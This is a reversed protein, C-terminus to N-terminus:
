DESTSLSKNISYKRSTASKGCALCLRFSEPTRYIDCTWIAIKYGPTPGEIICNIM